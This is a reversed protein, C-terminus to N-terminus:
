RKGGKALQCSFGLHFGAPSPFEGIPLWTWLDSVNTCSATNGFAFGGRPQASGDVLLQQMLSGVKEARSRV